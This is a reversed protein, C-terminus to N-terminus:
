VVDFRRQGRNYIIYVEHLPFMNFIRPDIGIQVHEILFGLTQFCQYFIQDLCRFCAGAIYLKFKGVDVEDLHCKLGVAFKFFFQLGSM